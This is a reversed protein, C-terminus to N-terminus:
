ALGAEAERASDGKSEDQRDLLTRQQCCSVEQKRRKGKMSELWGEEEEELRWSHAPLVPKVVGCGAREGPKGAQKNVAATISVPGREM